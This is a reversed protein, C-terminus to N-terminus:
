KLRRASVRTADGRGLFAGKLHKKEQLKEAFRVRLADRRFTTGQASTAHSVEFFRIFEGNETIKTAKRKCSDRRGQWPFARKLHKKEQLKEAFRVRLANCLVYTKSNKRITMNLKGFCGATLRM